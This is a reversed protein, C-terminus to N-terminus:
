SIKRNKMISMMKASVVSSVINMKSCTKEMKDSRIMENTYTTKVESDNPTSMVEVASVEEVTMMSASM